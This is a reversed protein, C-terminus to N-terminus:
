MVVTNEACQLSCQVCGSWTQKVDIHFVSNHGNDAHGRVESRGEARKETDRWLHGHAGVEQLPDAVVVVTGVTVDVHGVLGFHAIVKDFAVTGLAFLYRESKM